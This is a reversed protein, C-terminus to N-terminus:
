ISSSRREGGWYAKEPHHCVHILIKQTIPRHFKTYIRPHHLLIIGEREREGARERARRMLIVHEQNRKYHQLYLPEQSLVPAAQKQKQQKKDAPTISQNFPRSTVKSKRELKGSSTSIISAIIDIWYFEQIQHRAFECYDDLSRLWLWQFVDQSSLHGQYARREM